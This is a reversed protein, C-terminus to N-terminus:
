LKTKIRTGYIKKYPKNYINKLKETEKEIKKITDKIKSM